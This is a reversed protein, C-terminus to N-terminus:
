PSDYSGLRARRQQDNELLRKKWKKVFGRSMGVAQAYQQHTWDPHQWLVRRLKARAAYYVAEM